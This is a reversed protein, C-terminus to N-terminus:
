FWARQDGGVGTLVEFNEQMFSRCDELVAEGMVSLRAHKDLHKCCDWFAFVSAELLKGLWKACDASEETGQYEYRTLCADLALAERASAFAAHLVAGLPRPDDALASAHRGALDNLVLPQDQALALLLLHASERAITKMLQTWHTHAARHIGIAGWAAVSSVGAFDTRRAACAEALVIDQVLTLVEDHFLPVSLALEDLAKCVLQSAAGLDAPTVAVLGLSQASETDWWRKLTSIEQESFYSPSLTAIRPRLLKDTAVSQATNTLRGLVEAARRLTPDLQLGPQKVQLTVLAASDFYAAFDLPSAEPYGVEPLGQLARGGDANVLAALNRRLATTM